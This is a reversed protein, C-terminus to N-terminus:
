NIKMNISFFNLCSKQITKFSYTSKFFEFLIKSSYPLKWFLAGGSAYEQLCANQVWCLIQQADNSAFLADGQCSTNSIKHSTIIMSVLVYYPKYAMPTPYTQSLLWGRIAGMGVPLFSSTDRDQTSVLKDRTRWRSPQTRYPM